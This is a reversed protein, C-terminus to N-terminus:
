RSALTTSVVKWDGKVRRMLVVQLEFRASKPFVGLEDNKVVGEAELGAKQIAKLDSDKLADRYARVVAICDAKESLDTFKQRVSDVGVPAMDKCAAAADRKAVAGLWREATDVADRGGGGCGALGALALFALLRRRV